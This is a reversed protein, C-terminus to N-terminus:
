RRFFHVLRMAHQWQRSVTHQSSGNREKETRHCVPFLFVHARSAKLAPPKPALVAVWGPFSPTRSQKSTAVDRGIDLDAARAKYRENVFKELEEPSLDDRPAAQRFAAERELRPVVDEEDGHLEEGEDHILDEVGDQLVCLASKKSVLLKWPKCLAVLHKDAQLRHGRRRCRSHSQCPCAIMASLLLCHVPKM